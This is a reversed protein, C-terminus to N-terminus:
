DVKRVSGAGSVRQSIDTASGKYKVEGAGSVEADLKISAFVEADGAGSIDIKTNETMLGFCKANAAGTLECSFDKTKGSLTITGAGSLEARVQPVEIDMLISGAGSGSIKTQGKIDCAGSADISTYTPSTTYVKVKDTPDLNYGKRTRIILRNGEQKIELYQHLNADTEIKVPKLEGQSVYLDVAGSVDVDQFASVNREQVTINGDGRVKKGGVFRCSGLLIGSIVLLLLIKKM